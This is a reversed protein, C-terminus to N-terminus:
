NISLLNGDDDFKRRIINGDKDELAFETVKGNKSIHMGNNDKFDSYYELSGDPRYKYSDTVCEKVVNYNSMNVSGDKMYSFTKYPHENQPSLFHQENWSGSYRNNRCFVTEKIKKGASNLETIIAFEENNEGLPEVISNFDKNPIKGQKILSNIYEQPTTSYKLNSGTLIQAMATAKTAYACKKSALERQLEIKEVRSIPTALNNNEGKFPIKYSGLNSYITNLNRIEVIFYGEILRIIINFCKLIFFQRIKKLHPKFRKQRICFFDLHCVRQNALSMSRKCIRAPQM